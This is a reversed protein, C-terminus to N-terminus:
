QGNKKLTRRFMMHAAQLYVVRHNRTKACYNEMAKYKRISDALWKLGKRIDKNLGKKLSMSKQTSIMPGACIFMWKIHETTFM